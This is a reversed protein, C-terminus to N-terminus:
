MINQEARWLQRVPRDVGTRINMSLEHKALLRIEEAEWPLSRGIPMALEFYQPRSPTSSGQACESQGRARACFSAAM